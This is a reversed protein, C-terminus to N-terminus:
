KYTTEEKEEGNVVRKWRETSPKGVSVDPLDHIHSLLPSRSAQRPGLACGYRGGAVKM